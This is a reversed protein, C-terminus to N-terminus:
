RPAHILVGRVEAVREGLSRVDAQSRVHLIENPGFGRLLYKWMECLAPGSYDQYLLTLSRGAIGAALALEGLVVSRPVAPVARSTPLRTM